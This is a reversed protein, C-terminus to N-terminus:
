PLQGYEMLCAKVERRWDSVAEHFEALTNYDGLNPPNDLIGQCPYIRLEVSVSESPIGNAIVVLNWQGLSVEHPPVENALYSPIEIMCSQVATGTAVGMSSFDYSRAYAVQGTVPNTLRVIPYNTAMGADDGYCVAQSLGNFQTGTITYSNGPVMVSPVSLITPRWADQPAGTAPDPTYLYLTSAQASLLIQGTPLLLMFSQWTYNGAPLDPQVDLPPLTTATSAPDYELLVPSQSFYEGGDLVTTGGMCVVKGSPLLCAPADLATLTQWNPNVSMDQPFTPGLTWSGPGDLDSAPPPTYLATLGTGGIAFAAGSPLLIIPGTEDEVQVTKLSTIALPVPSDKCNVWQDLWPLYRQAKPTDRVAPVLVSGDPLLCFTEEEFPDEKTTSHAFWDILGAQVWSDDKPDWIATLNSWTSPLETTSAGGLLV